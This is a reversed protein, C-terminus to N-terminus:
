NTKENRLEELPKWGFKRWTRTIDTSASDYYVFDPDDVLPCYMRLNFNIKEQEPITLEFPQTMQERWNNHIKYPKTTGAITTLTNTM